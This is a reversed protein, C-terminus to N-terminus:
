QMLLVQQYALDRRAEAKRYSEFKWLTPSKPLNLKYFNVLAQEIWYGAEFHPDISITTQNQDMHKVTNKSWNLVHRARKARKKDESEDKPENGGELIDLAKQAKWAVEFIREDEPLHMAFLEEAAGALHIACFYNCEEMYQQMALDLYETAIDVKAYVAEATKYM